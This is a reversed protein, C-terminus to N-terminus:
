GNVILPASANPCLSKVSTPAGVNLPPAMLQFPATGVYPRLEGCCHGCAPSVTDDHILM